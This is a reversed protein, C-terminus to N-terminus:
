RQRRARPDIVTLGVDILLSIVVYTAVALLTFAIVVPLDGANIAQVTYAGVGPWTYVTEVIPAGGLLAAAGLGVVTLFPPAANPLGHVLIQQIKSAGRVRAVELYPASMAELLAARLIRGWYGISALALTLAPWGVTAWDGDSLVVSVDFGVVVVNLIILGFLFGPITVMTLTVVRAVQDPWRRHGAAAVVGVVLAGAFAAVLSVVTLRLTAPLRVLFEEMVPRGSRWSLGFDGQLAASLWSLYRRIPSDDLGLEQRTHAVLAPDPELIGRSQLVSVAPDTPVLLILCWVLASAVLLTILAQAFRRAIVTWM